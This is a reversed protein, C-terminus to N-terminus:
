RGRRWCGGRTSPSWIMTMKWTTDKLQVKARTYPHQRYRGDEYDIDYNTETKNPEEVISFRAGTRKEVSALYKELSEKTM